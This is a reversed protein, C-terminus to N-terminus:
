FNGFKEWLLREWWKKRLLVTPASDKYNLKFSQFYKVERINENLFTVNQLNESLFANSVTQIQFHSGV